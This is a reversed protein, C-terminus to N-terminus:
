FRRADGIEAVLSLATLTEIGRLCRLRSVAKCYPEETAIKEIEQDLGARLLTKHDLVSLHASLVVDDLPHLAPRLKALWDRFTKTWAKKGERFVHGRLQLFKLVHQKSEHIDGTFAERARTLGRVREEAETPVRVPALDGARY